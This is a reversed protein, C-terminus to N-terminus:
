NVTTAPLRRSLRELARKLQALSFPKRLLLAFGRQRYSAPSHLNATMAVVPIAKTRPHDRLLKLAGFGDLVPMDIDMLIADPVQELAKDVAERGNSALTVRYGLYQLMLQVVEASAQHNEAVLLKKMISRM